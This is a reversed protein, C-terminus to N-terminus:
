WYGQYNASVTGLQKNTNMFLHSPQMIYAPIQVSTQHSLAARLQLETRIISIIHKTFFIAFKLSNYLLVFKTHQM